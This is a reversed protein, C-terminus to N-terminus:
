YRTLHNFLNCQMAKEPKFHRSDTQFIEGERLTQMKVPLLIIGRWTETSPVLVSVGAAIGTFPISLHLEKHSWLILLRGKLHQTVSRSSEM